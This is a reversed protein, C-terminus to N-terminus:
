EGMLKKYRRAAERLRKGPAPPNLLCEVFTKQEEATLVLVQQERVVRSAADAAAQVVFDSVSRGQLRAAEKVL